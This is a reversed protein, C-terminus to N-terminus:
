DSGIMITKMEDDSVLPKMYELPLSEMQGQANRYSTQRPLLAQNIAVNVRCVLPKSGLLLGNLNKLDAAANIEATEIGYVHAQRLCDPLTLGSEPTCGTLRDDFAGKQSNFITAYGNNDIIFIKVPLQLRRLTELEQINMQFGGDGTVCITRRGSAVAAGIAAPLDFGMSALGKTSFVRQGKKVKFVCMSVDLASGSSTAVYIDDETMAESLARVFEFSNVYGGNSKYEDLMVPYNDTIKRCYGFWGSYENPKVSQLAVMLADMFKGADSHIALHPRVNAKKMEFPDIDVMIRKANKAFGEYAYGTQLLNLRAGITLLFDCNQQIFNAARQGVGGPRGFFLPHEDHILDIGNWTTLVPIGLTEAFKEAQGSYGSLRVGNGLMLCPRSSHQLHKIVKDIQAEDPEPMTEVPMEFGTLEDDYIQSAQVDLPIELWIPGPRGMTAEYWAKELHYKIMQPETVCASYKTIPKVVSVIDVEQMGQQRLGQGNITDSRKVQGSVVFMPTSEIYAAAVPTITNTAGPGVTVMLLPIKNNIRAYAEAAIGAAQEHLCAIYEIKGSKGLSYNLYMAAGGAVMFCHRVDKEEFFRILYDSLQIM